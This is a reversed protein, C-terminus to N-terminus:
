VSEHELNEAGKGRAKNGGVHRVRGQCSSKKPRGGLRQASGRSGRPCPALPDPNGVEKGIGLPRVALVEHIPADRGKQGGGRGGELAETRPRTGV